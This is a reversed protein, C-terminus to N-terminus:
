DTQTFANPLYTIEQQAGEVLAVDFRCIKDLVAYTMLFHAATRVIKKQKSLTIVESLAFLKQGRTKVEVFVLLDNKLAIIDIEGGRVTYNRSLISFGSKELYNAVASEGDVGVTQRHNKFATLM